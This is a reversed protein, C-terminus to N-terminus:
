YHSANGIIYPTLIDIGKDTIKNHYLDIYEIYNNSQIFEGLLIMCDDGIENGGFDIREIAPNHNKLTSLLIIGGITTIKNFLL